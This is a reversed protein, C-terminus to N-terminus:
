SDNFARKFIDVEKVVSFNLFFIRKRHASGGLLERSLLSFGTTLALYNQVIKGCLFAFSSLAFIVPSFSAM